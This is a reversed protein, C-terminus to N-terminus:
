GHSCHLYWGWNSSLCVVPPFGLIVLYERGLCQMYCSCSTASIVCFIIDCSCLLPLWGSEKHTIEYASMLLPPKSLSTGPYLLSLVLAILLLAGQCVFIIYM